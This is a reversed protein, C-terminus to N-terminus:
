FIANQNLKPKYGFNETNSDLSLILIYCLM